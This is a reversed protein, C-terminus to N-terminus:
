CKLSFFELSARAETLLYIDERPSGHEDALGEGFRSNNLFWDKVGPEPRAEPFFWRIELTIEPTIM